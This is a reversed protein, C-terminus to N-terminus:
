VSFSRYMRSHLVRYKGQSYATKESYGATKAAKTANWTQLYAEVFATQKDSLSKESM